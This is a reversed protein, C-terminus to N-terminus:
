LSDFWKDVDEPTSMMTGKGAKAEQRVKEAFAMLSKSPVSADTKVPILEVDGKRSTVIVREGKHAMDIYRGQNARFQTSTIVTMAKLISQIDCLYSKKRIGALKLPFIYSLAGSKTLADGM